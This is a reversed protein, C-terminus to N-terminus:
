GTSPQSSQLFLCILRQCLCMCSHETEHVGQLLEESLPLDKMATCSLLLLLLMPTFHKQMVALDLPLPVWM